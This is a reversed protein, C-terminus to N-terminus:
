GAAEASPGEAMGRLAALARSIHDVPILTVDALAPSRPVGPPVLLRRFGMRAAEAARQAMGPCPRVDGSLAVEGFVAVDAPVAADWAASALALCAALDAAPELLRLGGATALFADKDYLRLRGHRETVAILMAMRSGDLGSVGRRPNPASTPSVLAQVEAVVPRRGEMTVTPCTGAVPVERQGLFLGSPDPVERMGDDTQEFCAFEDPGFRNKVSALIRLPTGRDGSFDLVTDVSHSLSNPGAMSGDKTVQAVIICPMRRGKAIRTLAACVEQVQSVSGARGDIDPSAITQISDVILLDPDTQEVHAIVASLDTEDAVLLTEADAATRRARVAIQEASEEGSVILVTRGTRAVADAASLLLTSKGVGPPGAVVVCQGAVLGGGLVRDLEGIGTRMRPADSTSVDRMRQAPRTVTGAVLGGRMGVSRRAAVAANAEAVTGFEGCRACKGTWKPFGAGCASCEYGPSGKPM